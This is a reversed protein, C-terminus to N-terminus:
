TFARRQGFRPGCVCLHIRGQKCILAVVQREVVTSKTSSFQRYLLLLVNMRCATVNFKSVRFTKTLRLFTIRPCLVAKSISPTFISM